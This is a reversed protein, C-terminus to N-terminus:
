SFKQFQPKKKFPTKKNQKTKIKIKFVHSKAKQQIPPQL